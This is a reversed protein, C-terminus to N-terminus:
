KKCAWGGVSQCEWKPLGLWRGVRTKAFGLRVVRIKTPRAVGVGTKAEAMKKAYLGVALSLTIALQVLGTDM